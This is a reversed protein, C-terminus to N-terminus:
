APADFTGEPPIEPEPPPPNNWSRELAMRDWPNLAFPDRAVHAVHDALRDSLMPSGVYGKEAFAEPTPQQAFGGPAADEVVIGRKRAARALHAFIEVDTLPRSMWEWMRWQNQHHRQFDERWAAEHAHELMWKEVWVSYEIKSPDVAPPAAAGAREAKVALALSLGLRVRGETLRAAEHSVLGMDLHSVPDMDLERRLCDLECRLRDLEARKGGGPEALLDTIRRSKGYGRGSFPYFLNEGPM